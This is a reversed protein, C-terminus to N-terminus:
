TEHAQIDLVMEMVEWYGRHKKYGAYIFGLCSQVVKQRKIDAKVSVLESAARAYDSAAKTHEVSDRLNAAQAELEAKHRILDENEYLWERCPM